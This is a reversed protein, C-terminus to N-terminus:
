HSVESTRTNNSLDFTKIMAGLTLQLWRNASFQRFNPYGNWGPRKFPKYMAGQVETNIEAAQHYYASLGVPFGTRV